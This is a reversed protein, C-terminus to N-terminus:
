SGWCRSRRDAGDTPSPQPRPTSLAPGGCSDGEGDPRRPPRGWPRFARGLAAPLEGDRQHPSPWLCVRAAGGLQEGAGGPFVAGSCALDLEAHVSGVAGGGSVSGGDLPHQLRRGPGRFWGGGTTGASWALQAARSLSAAPRRACRGGCAGSARGAGPPLPGPHRDVLPGVTAGHACSGHPRGDTGSGESLGDAPSHWLRDGSALGPVAASAAGANGCASGAPAGTGGWGLLSRLGSSPPAPRGPRPRPSEPALLGCGGGCGGSRASATAAPGAGPPLGAMSNAGHGHTSEPLTAM